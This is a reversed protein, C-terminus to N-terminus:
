QDGSAGTAGTEPSTETGADAGSDSDQCKEGLLSDLNDVLRRLDDKTETGVEAPLGNVVGLLQTTRIEAIQCDGAAASTRIQDLQALMADASAQPISKEVDSGCGAVGLTLVALAPALSRLGPRLVRALRTVLILSNTM